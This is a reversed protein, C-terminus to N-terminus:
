LFPYLPWKHIESAKFSDANVDFQSELDAAISSYLAQLDGTETNENILQRSFHRNLIALKDPDYLGLAQTDKIKKLAEQAAAVPNAGLLQSSEFNMAKAPMVPISWVKGYDEFDVYLHRYFYTDHPMDPEGSEYDSPWWRRTEDHFATKRQALNTIGPSEKASLEFYAHKVEHGYFVKCLGRLISEHRALDLRCMDVLIYHKGMEERATAALFEAREYRESDALLQADALLSGAHRVITAIGAAIIELASAGDSTGFLNAYLVKSRNPPTPGRQPM